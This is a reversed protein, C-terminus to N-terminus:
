EIYLYDSWAAVNKESIGKVDSLQEITEFPGNRERYEIIAIAKKNGLGTLSQLQEADARNLEIRLVNQITVSTPNIPAYNSHFLPPFFFTSGVTLVVLAACVAGLALKTHRAM